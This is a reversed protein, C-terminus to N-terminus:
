IVCVNWKLVNLYEEDYKIWNLLGLKNWAKTSIQYSSTLHAKQTTTLTRVKTQLSCHLKRVPKDVSKESPYCIISESVKHTTHEDKSDNQRLDTRSSGPNPRCEAQLTAEQKFINHFLPTSKTDTIKLMGPWSEIKRCVRFEGCGLSTNETKQGWLDRMSNKQCCKKFNGRFYFPSM